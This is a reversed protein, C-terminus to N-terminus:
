KMVMSVIGISHKALTGVMSLVTDPSLLDKMTLPTSSNLVMEMVTVALFLPPSSLAVIIIVVDLAPVYAVAM